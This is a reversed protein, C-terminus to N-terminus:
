KPGFVAGLFAAVAAWIANLGSLTYIRGEAVEVRGGLAGVKDGLAKINAANEARGTDLDSTCRNLADLKEDMRNLSTVIVDDREKLREELKDLRYNVIDSPKNSAPNM